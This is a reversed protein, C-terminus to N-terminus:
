ENSEGRHQIKESMWRTHEFSYVGTVLIAQRSSAEEASQIVHRRISKGWQNYRFAVCATANVFMTVRQFNQSNSRQLRQCLGQQRQDIIFTEDTLQSPM